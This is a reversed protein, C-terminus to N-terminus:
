RCNIAEASFFSSSDRVTFFYWSRKWIKRNKANAKSSPSIISESREHLRFSALPYPSSLLGSRLALSSRPQTGDEHGAASVESRLGARRRGRDGVVNSRNTQRCLRAGGRWDEALARNHGTKPALRLSRWDCARVDTPQQRARVHQTQRWAPCHVVGRPTAARPMRAASRSM